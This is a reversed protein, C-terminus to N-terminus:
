FFSLSLSFFLLKLCLDILSFSSEREPKGGGWLLSRFAFFRIKGNPERAEKNPALPFHILWSETRPMGSTEFVKNWPQQDLIGLFFCITSPVEPASPPAPLWYPVTEQLFNISPEVKRAQSASFTLFMLTEQNNQAARSLRKWGWHGRTSEERTLFLNQLINSM